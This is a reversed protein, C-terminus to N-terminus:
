PAMFRGAAHSLSSPLLLATVTATTGDAYTITAHYATLADFTYTTGGSTFQDPRSGPTNMDLDATGSRNIMTASTIHTYLPDGTSGYTNGVLLSANEANSNGETPDILPGTGLSIWNFTTAM